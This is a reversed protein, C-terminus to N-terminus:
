VSSLEILKNMTNFNRTTAKVKLKSEYVNNTFKSDSQRTAYLTYIVEDIIQIQEPLFNISLFSKLREEDPQSNLLTFYLKSTDIDTFPNKEVIISFQEATRAIVTIDAGIEKKIVDHVLQETEERGLGTSAIINGSQIYTQVNKLETKALAARLDAMPVKNKGTPMVGRLLIIYKVINNKM